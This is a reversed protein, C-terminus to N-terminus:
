RFTRKHLSGCLVALIALGGGVAAGLDLHRVRTVLKQCGSMVSPLSSSLWDFNLLLAVRQDTKPRCYGDWSFSAGAPPSAPRPQKKDVGAPHEPPLRTDRKAAGYRPQARFTGPVWFAGANRVPATVKLFTEPALDPVTSLCLPRSITGLM